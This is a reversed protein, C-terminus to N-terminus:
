RDHNLSGEETSPEAVVTDIMPQREKTDRFDESWKLAGDKDYCEVQFRGTPKFKPMGGM